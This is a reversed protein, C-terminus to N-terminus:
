AYSPIECNHLVGGAAGLRICFLAIGRFVDKQQFFRAATTPWEGAPASGRRDSERQRRHPSAVGGWGSPPLSPYSEGFVAKHGRLCSDDRRDLDVAQPLRRARGHSPADNGRHAALIPPLLQGIRSVKAASQSNAPAYVAESGRGQGAHTPYRPRSVHHGLFELQSVGFVCKGVNLVLGFHCLAAFLQRVDREHQERSPSAVLVDDIYVFVGSLQSTVSDM